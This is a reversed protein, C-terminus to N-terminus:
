LFAPSLGTANSSARRKFVRRVRSRLTIASLAVTYGLSHTVYENGPVKMLDREVQEDRAQVHCITLRRVWCGDDHPVAHEVDFDAAKSPRGRSSDLRWPLVKTAARAALPAFAPLLDTAFFPSVLPLTEKM